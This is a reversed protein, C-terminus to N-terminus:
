FWRQDIVVVEYGSGRMLVQFRTELIEEEKKGRFALEKRLLEKEFEYPFLAFIRDPVFDLGMARAMQEVTERKDDYWFIRNLKALDETVLVVPRKMLDKVCKVEGDPTRFAVIAGLVHVQRLYDAGSNTNFTITWRLKRKTRANSTGPQDGPGVGPGDGTGTGGKSGTGGGGNGALLAKRMKEDLEALRKAAQTGHQLTKTVDRELDKDIQVDKLIDKPSIEIGKIDTLPQDPLKIDAPLEDRTAAEVQSAVSGDGPGNGVVGPRGGGGSMGFSVAEIPMDDHQRGLAIWAVVVVAVIALTHWALSAMGSIPLEHHPSYRVWFREDPPQAAKPTPAPPPAAKTAM